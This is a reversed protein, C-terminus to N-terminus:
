TGLVIWPWDTSNASLILISVSEVVDDFLVLIMRSIGQEGALELWLPMEMNKRLLKWLQWEMQCRQSRAKLQSKGNKRKSFVMESISSM